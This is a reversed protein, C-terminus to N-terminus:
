EDASFIGWLACTDDRRKFRPYGTCDADADQLACLQRFMAFGASPSDEPAEVGKSNCARIYEARIPAMVQKLLEGTPRSDGADLLACLGDRVKLAMWAADSVPDVVNRGSLCSAGDM